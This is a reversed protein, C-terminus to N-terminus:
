TIYMVGEYVLRTAEVTGTGMGRTWVIKLRAVNNRDIQDLASYGWGDLPRRSSLWNAPDPKWLMEDTVPVYPHNGNTAAPRSQAYTGLSAVVVMTLFSFVFRNM